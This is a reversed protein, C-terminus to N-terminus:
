LRANRWVQLGDGVLVFRDEDDQRLLCREDTELRWGGSSFLDLLDAEIKRGHTGIVLRRVRENLESRAASLAEFEAGQIDCHVLDVTPLMKLLTAVAVSNVEEMEVGTMAHGFDASAGWEESPVRLKPFKAISDTAGVVGHILVHEDPDFGNDQLHQRLFAFHEASGEVGAMLVNKIGLRQAARAGSVLWPGWGAGLEVVVFHNNKAEVAARLTATWESVTHFHANSNTPPGDVVGSLTSYAAPLYSCRTKTGLFDTWYGKKGEGSWAPLFREIIRHTAQQPAGVFQVGFEESQIFAERVEKISNLQSAHLTIVAENEPDRGFFMRYAWLVADRVQKDTSMM